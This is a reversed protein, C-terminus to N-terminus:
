DKGDITWANKVERFGVRPYYAMADPASLLLLQTEDGIQQYVADILAKGIGQRQYAVDVALDSLYCCFTFDTVARAIGILTGEDNRVTVILNANELMKRIRPKDTIPRREGLTSRNLVDIFEDVDLSNERQYTLVLNNKHLSFM